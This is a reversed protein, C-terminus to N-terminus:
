AGDDSAHRADCSGFTKRIIAIVGDLTLANKFLCHDIGCERAKQAYEPQDYSTIWVVCLGPFSEKFSKTTTVCAQEMSQVDMFIMDPSFSKFQKMLDPCYGALHMVSASLDSRLHDALMQGFTQNNDLILIKPKRNM